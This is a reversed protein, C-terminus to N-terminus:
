RGTNVFRICDVQNKFQPWARWGDQKCQDKSTLLLLYSIQVMPVGTTDVSQSGGGPVLNSAGAEAAVAPSVAAVAVAETFDEAEAGAGAAAAAPFPTAPVTQSRAPQSRATAATGVSAPGALGVPLAVQRRAAEM